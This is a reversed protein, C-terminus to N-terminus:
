RARRVVPFAGTRCSRFGIPNELNVMENLLISADRDNAVPLIAEAGLRKLDLYKHLLM